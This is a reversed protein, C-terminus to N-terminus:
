FNKIWKEREQGYQPQAPKPIFYSEKKPPITFKGEIDPVIIFISHEDFLHLNLFYWTKGQDKSIALLTEDTVNWGDLSEEKVTQPLLAYINGKIEQIEQPQGIEVPVWTAGTRKMNEKMKQAHEEFSQRVSETTGNLEILDPYTYKLQEDINSFIFADWAKLAEQRITESFQSLNNPIVTEGAHVIIPSLLLIWTLFIKNM